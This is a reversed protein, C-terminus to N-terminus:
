QFGSINWEKSFDLHDDQMVKNNVLFVVERIKFNAKRLSEFLAEICNWKEFISWSIDLINKNFSLFLINENKDLSASLVSVDIALVREALLISLWDNVFHKVNESKSKFFVFDKKEEYFKNNKWFYFVVEKKFSTNYNDFVNKDFKLSPLFKVILMNKHLLYFVIGALFVLGLFSYKYFSKFNLM